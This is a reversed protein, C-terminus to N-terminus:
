CMDRSGTPPRLAILEAKQASTGKPLPKAEVVSNLTVMSYGALCEGKKMFSSGETFYEADPDKLPQDRLDPRSSFVEDMVKICDHDPQSALCATPNCPKSDASSRPSHM